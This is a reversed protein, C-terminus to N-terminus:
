IAGGGGGRGGGGGGGGLRTGNSVSCVCYEIQKIAAVARKMLYLKYYPHSFQLSNVNVVFFYSLCITIYSKGIIM